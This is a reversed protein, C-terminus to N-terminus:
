RGAAGRSHHRNPGSWRARIALRVPARQAHPRSSVATIRPPVCQPSPSPLWGRKKRPSDPTELGQTSHYASHRVSRPFRGVAPVWGASRAGLGHLKRWRAFPVMAESRGWTRMTSSSGRIRMSSSSITALRPSAGTPYLLAPSASAANFPGRGAATTRSRRRRESSLARATASIAECSSMGMIVQEPSAGGSCAAKAEACYTAFGKASSATASAMRATTGLTRNSVEHPAWVPRYHSAKESHRCSVGAERPKAPSKLAGSGTVWGSTLATSRANWNARDPRNARTRSM